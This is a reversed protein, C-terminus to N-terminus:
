YSSDDKFMVVEGAKNLITCKRKEYIPLWTFDELDIETGDVYLITHNATIHKFENFEDQYDYTDRMWSTDTMHSVRTEALSDPKNAIWPQTLERGLSLSAKSDAYSSRGLPKIESMSELKTGNFVLHVNDLIAEITTYKWNGAECIDEILDETTAFIYSDIHKVYACYLSAINDKVVHLKGDPAIAGFAYYGSIHKEIASIGQTAMLEILHETDCSSIMDYAEQSTEVVGNHVLSWDHKIFPHTNELGKTNTSIRGHILLPGKLTKLKGFYNSTDRAVFPADLITRSLRFQFENPSVYREGFLTGDSNRGVYGFGDRESTFGKNAAYLVSALKAVSLKSTNTFFVQKCM